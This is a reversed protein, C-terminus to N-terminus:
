QAFTKLLVLAYAAPKKCRVLVKMLPPLWKHAFLIQQLKTKM